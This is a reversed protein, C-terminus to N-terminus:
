PGGGSGRDVGDGARLARHGGFEGLAARRVCAVAGQRFKAQTMRAFWPLVHSVLHGPKSFSLVNVRVADTRHNWRTSIFEEGALVHGLLTGYAIGYVSEADHREDVVAVVRCPHLMWFGLQRSAFTIAQEPAPPGPELIKLWDQDFVEWHDIAQRM